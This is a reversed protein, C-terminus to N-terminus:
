ERILKFRPDQLLVEIEEYEALTDADCDGDKQNDRDLVHVAVLPNDSYVAQVVGGSVEVVVSAIAASAVEAPSPTAPEAQQAYQKPSLYVLAGCEPCVGAPVVSGPELREALDPTVDLGNQLPGVWDCDDCKVQQQDETKCAVMSSALIREEDEESLGMGVNRKHAIEQAQELDDGWYWPETDGGGNPFHGCTGEVVISPRYGHETLMAETVYFMHNGDELRPMTAEVPVVDSPQLPSM